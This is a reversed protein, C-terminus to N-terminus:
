VKGKETTNITYQKKTVWLVVRLSLLALLYPYLLFAGVLGFYYALKQQSGVVPRLTNVVVGEDNIVVVDGNVAHVVENGVYQSYVYLHVGGAFLQAVSAILLICVLSHKGVFVFNSWSLRIVVGIVFVCVSKLVVAGFWGNILPNGEFSYGLWSLNVITTVLDVLAGFVFVLYVYWIRNM